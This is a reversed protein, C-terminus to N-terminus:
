GKRKKKAKAPKAEPAPPLVIAPSRASSQDVNGPLKMKIGNDISFWNGGTNKYLNLAGGNLYNNLRLTNSFIFANRAQFGTVTYRLQGGANVSFSVARTVTDSIEWGPVLLPASYRATLTDLPDRGTTAQVGAADQIMKTIDRDFRAAERAANAMFIGSGTLTNLFNQFITVTDGILSTTVSGEGNNYRVERVNYFAGNAATNYATDLILVRQSFAASCCALLCFLLIHKKM